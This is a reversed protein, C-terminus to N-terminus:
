RIDQEEEGGLAGGPDIWGINGDPRRYVINLRQHSANRFVLFPQQLLDMQMVADGVSLERISTQAEAIVLPAIDAGNEEVEDDDLSESGQIVYDMAILDTGQKREARGNSHDKLRRKYRRLRKELKEAAAEVSAYADGARGHTEIHLGSQLHISCSALFAAHEKEIRVHGSLAKGAYKEIAQSVREIAFNRLAEGLDLNKGTVQIVMDRWIQCRSATM